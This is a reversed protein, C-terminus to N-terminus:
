SCRARSRGRGSPRGSRGSRRGRAPGRARPGPSRTAPSRAPQRRARSPLGAMLLACRESDTRSAAAAAVPAPAAAPAARGRGRCAELAEAQGGAAVLVPPECRSLSSRPCAFKSRCRQRGRADVGVSRAAPRHGREPRRRRCTRVPSKVLDVIEGVADHDGVQHQAVADPESTTFRWRPLRAGTSSWGKAARLVARGRRRRRSGCVRRRRLRVGSGAGRRRPASREPRGDAGGADQDHGSRAAADVM